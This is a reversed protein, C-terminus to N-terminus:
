FESLMRLHGSWQGHRNVATVFRNDDTVVFTSNRIAAELFLCDYIPHELAVAMKMADRTNDEDSELTAIVGGFLSRLLPTAQAESIEKTLIKRWLANGIEAQWISPAALLETRLRAAADSRIEPVVIKVIVSTDVVIM